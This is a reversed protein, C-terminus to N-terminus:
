KPLRLHNCIPSRTVPASWTLQTNEMLGAIMLICRAGLHTFTFHIMLNSSVSNLVIKGQFRLLVVEWSAFWCSGVAGCDGAPPPYQTTSAWGRWHIIRFGIAATAAEALVARSCNFAATSAASIPWRASISFVDVLKPSPNAATIKTTETWTSQQSYQPCLQKHMVKSNYM